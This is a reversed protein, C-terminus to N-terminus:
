VNVFRWFLWFSWVVLIVLGNFLRWGGFMRWRFGRKVAVISLGLLIWVGTDGGDGMLLCSLDEEVRESGNNYGNSDLM